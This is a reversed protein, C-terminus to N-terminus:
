NGQLIKKGTGYRRQFDFSNDEPRTQKAQLPMHHQNWSLVFINGYLTKGALKKPIVKIEIEGHKPQCVIYLKNITSPLEYSKAYSPLENDCVQIKFLDEISEM